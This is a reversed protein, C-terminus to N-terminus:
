DKKPPIREILSKIIESMNLPFSDPSTDNNHVGFIRSAVESKIKTSDAHDLSTIYSPIAKLDLAIRRNIHQQTRHKASERALYAAPVSLAIAIFMKFISQKWDLESSLTEYLAVLLILGTLAMCGLSCYRMIDAINEEEKATESYGLRLVDTASEGLLLDVKVKTEAAISAADNSFALSKDSETKIQEQLAPIESKLQEIIQTLETLELKTQQYSDANKERTNDIEIRGNSIDKEFRDMEPRLKNLISTLQKEYYAHGDKGRIIKTNEIFDQERQDAQNSDYEQLLEMKTDFDLIYESAKNTLEVGLRNFEPESIYKESILIGLNNAHIATTKALQLTLLVKPNSSSIYESFKNKSEIFHNVNDRDRAPLQDIYSESLNHVLRSLLDTKERCVAITKNM